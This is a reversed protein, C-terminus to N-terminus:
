WIRVRQEPPLYMKDGPKVDFAAYFPEFNVLVGNVRFMAPSHTDNLLGTRGPQERQVEARALAFALFFRQDGTLGKIVPAEQGRLSMRYARYAIALGGLDAINEGLTLRGNVLLSPQASYGGYQKVLRDAYSQFETADAGTWWDRLNGDGDYHRNQDDFAHSLEHGIIAGVAAFNWADEARDDFLPHQFIAAPLTIDNRRPNYFANVVQPPAFWKDKAVPKGLLSFQENFWFQSARFLNGVADGRQVTLRGYDTWRDPFGVKPLIKTLKAKAQQKTSDRMWVLGDIEARCAEVLTHVLREAGARRASSFEHEVYLRGLADELFNENIADLARMWRPAISPIGNRIRGNFDFSATTFQTGLASAAAAVVQFRLYSKWDAITTQGLITDIAAVFSPQRVIVTEMHPLGLARFHSTWDFRPTLSQLQAVTLKNYTAIPDRNRVRSWQAHALMTEIKLARAADGSPDNAGALTLMSRMYREYEVRIRVRNSDSALYLERDGLQLGWQRLTLAYRDADKPDQIAVALIPTIVGFSGLRAFIQPLDRMTRLRDVERLYPALPRAGSADLSSSDLLTAYFDGILQMATGRPARRMAAEEVVSRLVAATRRELDSYDISVRDAPVVTRKIWGGNAFSFFDDQPRVSRDFVATDVQPVPPSNQGLLGSPIGVVVLLLRVITRKADAAHRSGHEAFFRATRIDALPAPSRACETNASEPM